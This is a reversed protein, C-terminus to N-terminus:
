TITTRHCGMAHGIEIVILEPLPEDGTQCMAMAWVIEAKNDNPGDPVFKKAIKIWISILWEPFHM